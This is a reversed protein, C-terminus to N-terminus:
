AIQESIDAESTSLICLVEMSLFIPHTNLVQFVHDLTRATRLLWRVLIKCKCTRGSAQKDELSIPQQAGSSNFIM